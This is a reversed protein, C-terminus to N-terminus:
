LLPHPLFARTPAAAPAYEAFAPQRKGKAVYSFWEWEGQHLTHEGPDYDSAPADAGEVLALYEDRIDQFSNELMSVWPFRARDWWPQSTLGPYIFLTPSPRHAMQTRLIGTRYIMAM